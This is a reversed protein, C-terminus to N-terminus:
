AAPFGDFLASANNTPAHVASVVAGISRLKEYVLSLKSAENDSVYFSIMLQEASSTEFVVNPSACPAMALGVHTYASLRNTDVVM